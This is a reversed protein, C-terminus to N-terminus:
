INSNTSFECCIFIRHPIHFLGKNTERMRFPEHLAAELIDAQIKQIKTSRLWKGRYNLVKELQYEVVQPSRCARIHRGIDGPETVIINEM